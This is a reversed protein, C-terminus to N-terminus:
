TSKLSEVGIYPCLVDISILTDLDHCVCIHPLICQNFNVPIYMTHENIWIHGLSSYCKKLHPSSKFASNEVGVTCCNRLQVGMRSAFEVFAM